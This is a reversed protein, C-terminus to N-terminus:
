AATAVATFLERCKGMFAGATQRTLTLTEGDASTQALWNQGAEDQLIALEGYAALAAGQAAAAEIRGHPRLGALRPALDAAAAAGATELLATL